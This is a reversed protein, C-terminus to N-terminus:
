EGAIVKALKEALEKDLEQLLAQQIRAREMEGEKVLVFGLNYRVRAFRPSIRLCELYAAIAEKNKGTAFYANGLLYYGDSYNPNQETFKELGPVSKRYYKDSEANKDLFFYTRGLYYNTEGDDPALKLANMCSAIASNFNSRAQVLKEAQYFYEGQDMYARCLNTHAMYEGPSLQVAKQGAVVAEPIQGSLSYYWALSIHLLGDDPRMSLGAKAATIADDFRNMNRYVDALNSYSQYLNRETDTTVRGANIDRVYANIANTYSQAADQYLKSRVQSDALLYWANGAYPSGLRLANSASKGQEVYNGSGSYAVALFYHADANKEELELARTLSAVAAPYDNALIMMRGLFTHYYPTGPSLRVATKADSIAGGYDKNQLQAEMRVSVVDLEPYGQLLALDFEKVAEAYQGIRYHSYGKFFRAKPFVPSISLANGYVQLAEQYRRQNYLKDAEQVLRRAQKKPRQASAESPLALLFATLAAITFLGTLVKRKM